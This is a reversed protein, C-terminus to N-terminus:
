YEEEYAADKNTLHIIIVDFLPYDRYEVYFSLDEKFNKPFLIGLKDGNKIRNGSKTNSDSDGKEKLLYDGYVEKMTNDNNFIVVRCNFNEISTNNVVRVQNYSKEPGNVVFSMDNQAFVTITTVFLFALLLNKKMVVM